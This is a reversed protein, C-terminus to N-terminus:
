GHRESVEAEGDSTPPSFSMRANLEFPAFGAVSKYQAAIAQREAFPLVDDLDVSPDSARERALELVRDPGQARNALVIAATAPRRQEDYALLADEISDKTALHWTLVRADIVGQTAGNSGIPYMPHAADGILTVRGFSWRPLPDRDTMPFVSIEASQAIIEPVDETDWRWDAYHPAFDARNGIRNWDEPPPAGPDASRLDAIWNLVAEGRERDIQIPYAVFKQNAHGAWIMTPSVLDAPMRTTSRWLTVGNWKPQGEDPYFFRRVASHIGDAGILLDPEITLEEGTKSDVLLAAHGNETELLTKLALGFRITDPGLRQNVKELLFEHLRGRHIAIQPWRYGAPMGRPEQWVERGDTMLYILSEIEVGLQRLEDLLGLETLERVAHPLLNIGVGLPLPDAVAEYVTPRYGAAHLSLAATLGAIGGGIIAIDKAEAM